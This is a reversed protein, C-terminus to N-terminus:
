CLLASYWRLLLCQKACAAAAIYVCLLQAGSLLPKAVLLRPLVRLCLLLLLLLAAVPRIVPVAM